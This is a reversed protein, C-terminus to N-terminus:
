LTDLFTALRMAIKAAGAASPHLGDPMYKTKLIELSPQIGITSYLDLVPISYYECVEKIANVFAKLNPREGNYDVGNHMVSDYRVTNESTRHLPTMFVITGEPYKNILRKCLSHLAGYFTYEDCSDFCGFPADGHGFDNTGGFVVVVDADDVMGEVRDLFNLDHRPDASPKFQRAIRTGSIGYNYVISNTIREFVSTYRNEIPGAGIGQTISDGLIAVKKGTLKM